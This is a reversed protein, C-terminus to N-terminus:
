EWKAVVKIIKEGIITYIKVDKASQEVVIKSPMPLLWDIQRGDDIVMRNDALFYAIDNDSLYINEIDPSLTVSVDSQIGAIITRDASSWIIPTEISGVQQWRGNNSDSDQPIYNEFNEWNVVGILMPNVLSSAEIIKFKEMPDGVASYNAIRKKMPDFAWLSGDTSLAIQMPYLSGTDIKGRYRLYRDFQYITNKMPIAVYVWQGSFAIDTIGSLLEDNGRSTTRALTDDVYRYIANPCAAYFGGMKDPVIGVPAPSFVTLTEILVITAALIM